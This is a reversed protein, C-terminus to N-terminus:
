WNGSGIMSITTMIPRGWDHWPWNSQSPKAATSPNRRCRQGHREPTVSSNSTTEPRTASSCRTIVRDTSRGCGLSTCSRPASQAPSSTSLDFTRAGGALSVVQDYWDGIGQPVIVILVAVAHSRTASMRNATRSCPRNLANASPHIHGTPRTWSPPRRDIMKGLRV